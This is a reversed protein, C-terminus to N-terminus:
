AIRVDIAIDGVPDFSYDLQQQIEDSLCQDANSRVMEVAANESDATVLMTVQLMVSVDVSYEQVRRPMDHEAMFDDFDSCFERDNAERHLDEVLRNRWEENAKVVSEAHELRVLLQGHSSAMERAAQLEDIASDRDAMMRRMEVTLRRIEAQADAERLARQMGATFSPDDTPPQDNESINM